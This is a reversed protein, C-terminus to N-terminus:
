AASASAIFLSDAAAIAVAASVVSDRHQDTSLSEPNLWNGEKYDVYFGRKKLDDARTAWEEIMSEMENPNLTEAGFSLDIGVRAILRAAFGFANGGLVHKARHDRFFKQMWADDQMGQSRYVLSVSKAAEEFALVCLATAAGNHGDRYILGASRFLRHANAHAMRAGNMAASLPVM